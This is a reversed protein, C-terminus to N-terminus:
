WEGSPLLLDIDKNCVDIDKAAAKQMPLEDATLEIGNHFLRRLRSVNASINEGSKSKYFENAMRNGKINQCKPDHGIFIAVPLIDMITELEEARQRTQEELIKREQEVKMRKLVQAVAPAMAELDEQQEYSYGGKRNAVAISGVIQGDLFLPV